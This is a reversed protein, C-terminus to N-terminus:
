NLVVSMFCHILKPSNSLKQLFHKGMQQELICSPSSLVPSWPTFVPHAFVVTTMTRLGAVHPWAAQGAIAKSEDSYTVLAQQGEEALCLM